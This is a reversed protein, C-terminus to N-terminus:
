PAKAGRVLAELDWMAPGSDSLGSTTLAEFRGDRLRGLMYWGGGVYRPVLGARADDSLMVAGGMAGVPLGSGPAAAALWATKDVQALATEVQEATLRSPLLVAGDNVEQIGGFQVGRQWTAGAATQMAREYAAAVEDEDGDEPDLEGQVTAAFIADAARILNTRAEAPVFELPLAEAVRLRAAATTRLEPKVKPATGDVQMQAGTLMARAAALSGTDAVLAGAHGFLKDDGGGDKMADRIEALPLSVDAGLANSMAGLM